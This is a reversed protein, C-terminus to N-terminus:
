PHEPHRSQCLSVYFVPDSGFSCVQVIAGVVICFSASLFVSRRGLFDNIPAAAITEILEGVYIISASLSLFTTGLSYFGDENKQGYDKAFWTM